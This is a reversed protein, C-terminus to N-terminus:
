DQGAFGITGTAHLRLVAFGLTTKGSGSEGVLGVTEGARVALSVGDVARVPGVTRRLVGRRIAFLVRM